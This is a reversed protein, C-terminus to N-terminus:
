STRRSGEDTPNDASDVHGLILWSSGGLLLASIKRVLPQLAFSSTRGKALISMIVYSDTIHFLKRNCFRKERAKWLLSLYVARCELANIQESQSWHVTFVQQWDWWNSRVSERPFCRSNMLEGTVIRVDSGTHNTRRLMQKNLACVDWVGSGVVPDETGQQLPCRVKLHLSMGPPLGIRQNMQEVEITKCWPFAAYAAIVMFSLCSFSDGILSCREDEWATKNGKAKSASYALYTHCAGYGMLKERELSNLLRCRGVREDFILYQEKYQYPPFRYSDSSWRERAWADTRELGAPRWPPADRPISKM